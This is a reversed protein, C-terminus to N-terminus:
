WALYWSSIWGIIEPPIMRADDKPWKPPEKENLEDNPRKWVNPFSCQYQMRLCTRSAKYFANIYLPYGPHSRKPRENFWKRPNKFRKQKEIEITMKPWKYPVICTPLICALMFVFRMSCLPNLILHKDLLYNRFSRAEQFSWQFQM